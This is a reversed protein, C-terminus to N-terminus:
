KCVPTYEVGNTEFFDILDEVKNIVRECHLYFSAKFDKVHDMYYAEQGDERYRINISRSGMCTVERKLSELLIKDTPHSVLALCQDILTVSAVEAVYLKGCLFAYIFNDNNMFSDAVQRMEKNMIDHETCLTRTITEIARLSAIIISIMEKTLLNIRVQRVTTRARSVGISAVRV